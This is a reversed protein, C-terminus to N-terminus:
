PAYTGTLEAEALVHGDMAAELERKTAGSSLDLETDLAVLRFVYTHERDPPAPGGWGVEGFDNKGEVGPAQGEPIRGVDPDVNWMVWHDWIKGAPEQADPDDVILALSAAESPVDHIELPPSVNAEEYGYNRPIPAGDDFAPSTLHMEHGRYCELPNPTTAM